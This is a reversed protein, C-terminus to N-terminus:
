AEEVVDAWVKVANRYTRKFSAIAEEESGCIITTRGINPVDFCTIEYAQYHSPFLM